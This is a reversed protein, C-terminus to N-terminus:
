WGSRLHRADQPREFLRFIRAMARELRRQTVITNEREVQALLAPVRELLLIALQKEERRDCTRVVNGGSPSPSHTRWPCGAPPM